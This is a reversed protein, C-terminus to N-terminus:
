VFVNNTKQNKNEENKLKNDKSIRKINIKTIVFKLDNCFVNEQYIFQQFTNHYM